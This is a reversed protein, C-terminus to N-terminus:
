QQTPLFDPHWFDPPTNHLQAMRCSRCNRPLKSLVTEASKGSTMHFQFLKKCDICLQKAASAQVPTSNKMPTGTKTTAAEPEKWKDNFDTAIDLPRSGTDEIRRSREEKLAAILLDKKSAQSEMVCVVSEQSPPPVLIIDSTDNKEEAACNWAHSVNEITRFVCPKNNPQTPPEQKIKQAQFDSCSEIGACFTRDIDDGCTHTSTKRTDNFCKDTTSRDIKSNSRSIPQMGNSASEKKMRFSRVCKSKHASSPPTPVIFDNMSVEEETEKGGNKARVGQNSHELFVLKTQRLRSRGHLPSRLSKVTTSSQELKSVIAKDDKKVTWKSGTTTASTTAALQPSKEDITKRVAVRADLKSERLISGNKREYLHKAPSRDPFCENKSSLPERKSPSQSLAFFSEESDIINQELVSTAVLSAEPDSKNPFFTSDDVASVNEKRASLSADISRRKRKRVPSVTINAQELWIAQRERQVPLQQELKQLEITARDHRQHIEWANELIRDIYAFLDDDVNSFSKYKLVLDCLNKM